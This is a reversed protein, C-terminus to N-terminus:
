LLNKYMSLLKTGVNNASFNEALEVSKKAMTDYFKKDEYFSKIQRVFGENTDSSIYSDKFSDNYGPLNRVIVPLGCAAAEIIVMPVIDQKSPMFFVDALNYYMPMKNYPMNDTLILNEPKKKLLEKIEKTEESLGKIILGGVWM